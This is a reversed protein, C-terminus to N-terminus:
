RKQCDYFTEGEGKVGRALNKTLLIESGVVLISFGPFAHVIFAQDRMFVVCLCRYTFCSYTLVCCQNNTTAEYGLM